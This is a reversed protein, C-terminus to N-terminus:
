PAPVPCSMDSEECHLLPKLEKTRTHTMETRCQVVLMPYISGQSAASTAFECQADRFALWSRQAKVLLAYTPKNKDLRSIVQQYTTNLEKDAVKFEQDACVNMGIQSDQSCDQARVAVSAALSVIVFTIIAEVSRM